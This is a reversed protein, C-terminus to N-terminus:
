VSAIREVAQAFRSRLDGHGLRELHSLDARDRDLAEALLLSRGRELSQVASQPDGVRVQAYAAGTAFRGANLLWLEKHRRLLQTQFLNRVASMGYEYATVAEAWSSRKTAWNGWTGAPSLVEGPSSISGVHCAEAFVSSIRGATRPDPDDADAAILALGMNNLFKTRGPDDTTVASMLAERIEIVKALDDADGSAQWRCLLSSAWNDLYAPRDPHDDPMARLAKEQAAVARQLDGMDGTALHRETLARGLNQLCIALDPGATVDLLSSALEIILDLDGLHRTHQYRTSIVLAFTNMAPMRRRPDHQPDAAADFVAAAAEELYGLEGTHEYMDRLALAYNNLATLRGLSDAEYAQAAQSHLFVAQSLDPWSGFHLYRSWLANALNTVHGLVEPTDSGTAQMAQAHCEVAQDIDRREGWREFRARRITGLIDACLTAIESGALIEAVARQAADVAAELDEDGGHTHYSDLFYTGADALAAVRLGPQASSMAPHSLLKRYASTLNDLDGVDSSERYRERKQAVDALM